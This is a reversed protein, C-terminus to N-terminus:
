ADICGAVLEITEGSGAILENEALVLAKRLVLLAQRLSARAQAENSDSWLMAALKGRLHPRGPHLTLYALLAQAKKAPLLLPREAGAFLHLGGFAQIRLRTVRCDYSATDGKVFNQRRPLPQPSARKRVQWM